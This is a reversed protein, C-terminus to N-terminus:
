RKVAVCSVYTGQWTYSPIPLHSANTVPWTQKDFFEDVSIIEWGEFLMQYISKTREISFGAEVDWVFPENTNKLWRKINSLIDVFIYGGNKTASLFKEMLLIIEKEEFLHLVESCIIIDFKDEIDIDLLNGKRYRIDVKHKKAKESIVNEPIQDIGTVDFGKQALAFSNRGDGCGADLANRNSHPLKEIFRFVDERPAGFIPGHSNSSYEKTYWDEFLSRPINKM